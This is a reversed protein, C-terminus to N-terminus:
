AHHHNAREDDGIMSALGIEEDLALLEPAPLPTMRTEPYLIDEVNQLNKLDSHHIKIFEEVNKEGRLFKIIQNMGPRLEAQRSICLSAVLVVQGMQADNYEERLKPDLLSMVDGRDLFPKAWTVLSEEGKADGYAIPRRGSLLELLVVGYSYVDIKSSVKGHLIYEPAMYGFTGVVEDHTVNACDTPGWIALGFDSLQPQFEDSLLINSSKVDRHIVPRLCKSHLYNLAEAIEVAVKYRKKWSLRSNDTKGEHLIDELSGKPTFEYVSILYNDEICVGILPVINKHKLPLVIEVELFFEQRAEEYSRLMKVAVQKGDPLCGKYISGCGGKGILNDPSFDSTSHKLEEYSFWGCAFSKTKFFLKLEDHSKRSASLSNKYRQYGSKNTSRRYRHKTNHLTKGTGSQWTMVEPRGPLNMVWQTVSLNRARAARLAEPKESAAIHLLPWGLDSEPLEGFGSSKSSVEKDDHPTEGHRQPIMLKNLTDNQDDKKIINRKRVSGPYKKTLTSSRDPLRPQQQDASTAKKLLPWGPAIEQKQEKLLLLISSLSDDEESNSGRLVNIPASKSAKTWKKDLGPEYSPIQEIIIEGKRVFLVDKSMPCHRACYRALSFWDRSCAKEHNNEAIEAMGSCSNSLRRQLKRALKGSLASCKMHEQKACDM